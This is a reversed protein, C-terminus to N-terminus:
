RQVALFIVKGASSLFFQSHVQLKRSLPSERQDNEGTIRHMKEFIRDAAPETREEAAQFIDGLDLSCEKVVIEQCFDTNESSKVPSFLLLITHFYKM